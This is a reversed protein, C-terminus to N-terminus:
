PLMLLRRVAAVAEVTSELTYGCCVGVLGAARAGAVNGAHDDVFVSRGPAVGLRECALHFIAPNPKRVGVESSDVVDDFLDGLPLIPRWYSAFEAVNNTVIGTKLGASRADAVLDVVFDRHGHDGGALSAFVDLPDLDGLGRGRAREAILARAEEFAIEGRELRHWPHDDDSDYNGFVLASLEALPMGLREAGSAASAFPSDIFVGGFDFLVADYPRSM